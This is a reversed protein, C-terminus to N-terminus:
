CDKAIRRQRPTGSKALEGIFDDVMVTADENMIEM